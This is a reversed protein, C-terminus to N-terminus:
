VPRSAAQENDLIITCKLFLLTVAGIIAVIALAIHNTLCSYTAIYLMYAHVLYM